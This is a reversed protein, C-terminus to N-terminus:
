LQNNILPVIRQQESIAIQSAPYINKAKEYWTYSMIYDGREYFSRATALTNAFTHTLPMLRSKAEFVNRDNPMLQSAQMVLELAGNHNNNASLMSAQSLLLDVTGVRDIIQKLKEAREADAALGVGMSHRNNFIARYDENATARDFDIISTQAIDTQTSVRTSFNTLGPNLPWITASEQLAKQAAPFNNQSILFQAEALKLNSLQMANRAYSSVENFKSDNSLELIRQNIEMLKDYDKLALLQRAERMLRYIELIRQRDNRSFTSVPALHEGLYFGEQLREMASFLDDQELSFTVAEMTNRTDTIAEQALQELAEVTYVMDGQPLLRALFQEGVRVHQASGRFLARYFYSAMIAHEFRRQMMFYIIQSQFQFQALQAQVEVLADQQELKLETRALNTESRNIGGDFSGGGSPTATEGSGAIRARRQAESEQVRRRNDVVSEQFDRQRELETLREISGRIEDRMRWSNYIMHALTRSTGGDQSFEAAKFLLRYAKDVNDSFVTESGSLHRPSLLDKVQDLLKQYEAQENINRDSQNLYREFRSRFARSTGIDFTRGKWSLTGDDSDGSLGSVPDFLNTLQEPDIEQLSLNGARASIETLDEQGQLALCSALLTISIINRM